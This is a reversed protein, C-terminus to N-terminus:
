SKNGEPRNEAGASQAQQMQTLPIYIRSDVLLWRLVASAEGPISEAFLHASAPQEPAVYIPPAEYLEQGRKQYLGQKM